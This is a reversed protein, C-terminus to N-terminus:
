APAALSPSVQVLIKTFHIKGISINVINLDILLIIYIVCKKYVLKSSTLLGYMFLMMRQTLLRLESVLSKLPMYHHTRTIIFNTLHVQVKGFHYQILTLSM